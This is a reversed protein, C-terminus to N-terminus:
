EIRRENLRKKALIIDLMVNKSNPDVGYKVCDSQIQNYVAEKDNECELKDKQLQEEWAVSKGNNLLIKGARSCVQMYIEPNLLKEITLPVNQYHGPSNSLQAFQSCFVSAIIGAPNKADKLKVIRIALKELNAKQAEPNFGLCNKAFLSFISRM